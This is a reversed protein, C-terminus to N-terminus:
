GANTCCGRSDIYSTLQAHADADIVPGSMRRSCRPIASVRARDMWGRLLRLVEDATDDQLCVCGCRGFLAPGRQQVRIASRRAGVNSSPARATPL